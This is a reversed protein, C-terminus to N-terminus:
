IKCSTYTYVKKHTYMRHQFETAYDNWQIVVSALSM